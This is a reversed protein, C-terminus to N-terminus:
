RLREVVRFREAVVLTDDDFDPVKGLYQSVQEGQFFKQHVSRWEAVTEFGEGEARAFEETVEHVPIVRAEVIQLVAIRRGDSDVLAQLTGPEPIPLGDHEYEELLGTTTTKEGALIAAM